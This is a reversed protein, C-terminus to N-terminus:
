MFEYITLSCIWCNGGAKLEYEIYLINFMSTSMCDLYASSLECLGTLGPKKMFLSLSCDLRCKIEQSSM